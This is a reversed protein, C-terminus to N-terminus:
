MLDGYITCKVKYWYSKVGDSEPDARIWAFLTHTCEMTSNITEVIHIGDNVLKRHDDTTM